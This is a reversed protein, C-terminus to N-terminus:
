YLAFGPYIEDSLSQGIQDRHRLVEFLLAVEGKPRPLNVMWTQLYIRSCCGQQSLNKWSYRLGVLLVVEGPGPGLLDVM